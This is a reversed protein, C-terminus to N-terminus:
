GCICHGSLDTGSGFPWSHFHRQEQFEHTISSVSPATTSTLDMIGSTWPTLSIDMSTVGNVISTKNPSQPPVGGVAIATVPETTAAFVFIFSVAIRLLAVHRLFSPPGQPPMARCGHVVSGSLRSSAIIDAFNHSVDQPMFPHPPPLCIISGDESGYEPKPETLPPLPATAPAVARAAFAGSIHIDREVSAGGASINMQAEVPQVYQVYESVATIRRSGGDGVCFSCTSVDFLM